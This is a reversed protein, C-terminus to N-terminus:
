HCTDVLGLPDYGHQRHGGINWVASLALWDRRKPWPILRARRASGGGKGVYVSIIDAANARVIVM